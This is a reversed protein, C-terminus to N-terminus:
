LGGHLLGAKAYDIEVALTVLQAVTKFFILGANSWFTDNSTASRIIHAILGRIVVSHRQFTSQLCNYKCLTDICQMSSLCYSQLIFKRILLPFSVLNYAKVSSKFWQTNGSVNLRACDYTRCESIAASSSASLWLKQRTVNIGTSNRKCCETFIWNRPEVYVTNRNVRQTIGPIESPTPVYLISRLKQLLDRRETWNLDISKYISSYSTFTAIPFYMATNHRLPEGLLLIWNIVFPM